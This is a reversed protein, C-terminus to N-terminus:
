LRREQAVALSIEAGEALRQIEDGVRIFIEASVSGIAQVVVRERSLKIALRQGRFMLPLTVEQWHDPLRPDIVITNDITGIGCLGFVAALWAGGWGILTLFLAKRM